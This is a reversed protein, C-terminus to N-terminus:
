VYFIEGPIIDRIGYCEIIGNYNKCEVLGNLFYRHFLLLEKEALFLVKDGKKFCMKPDALEFKRSSVEYSKCTDCVEVLMNENSLFELVKCPRHYFTSSFGGTKAWVIDGVKFLSVM